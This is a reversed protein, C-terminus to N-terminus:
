PWWVRIASILTAINIAFTAAMGPARLLPGLLYGGWFVLRMLAFVLAAALIMPMRAPSAGAALALLAPAFGTLQEVTNTLVRQNVQLPRTDRGALPDVAGYALRLRMQVVVMLNLVCVAPLLSAFALGLREPLAGAASAPIIRSLALWIIFAVVIGSGSSLLMRLEM